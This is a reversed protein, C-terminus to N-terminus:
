IMSRSVFRWIRMLSYYFDLPMKHRQLQVFSFWVSNPLVAGYCRCIVLVSRFAAEYLLSHVARFSLKPSEDVNFRASALDGFGWHLKEVGFCRFPRRNKRRRLRGHFDGPVTITKPQPSPPKSWDTRRPATCPLFPFLFDQSLPPNALGKNQM